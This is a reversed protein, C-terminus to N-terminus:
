LDPSISQGHHPQPQSNVRLSHRLANVNVREVIRVACPTHRSGPATASIVAKGDRLSHGAYEVVPLDSGLSRGELM